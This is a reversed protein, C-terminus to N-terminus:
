GTRVWTQKARNAEGRKITARLQRELDLDQDRVADTLPGKAIDKCEENTQPEMEAIRRNLANRKAMLKALARSQKGNSLDKQQELDKIQKVVSKRKALLDAPM